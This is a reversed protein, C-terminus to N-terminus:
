HVESIRVSRFSSFLKFNASKLTQLQSFIWLIFTFSQEAEIFVSFDIHILFDASESPTQHSKKRGFKTSKVHFFEDLSFSFLLVERQHVDRCWWVSLKVKWLRRWRLTCTFEVFVFVFFLLFFIFVVFLLWKLPVPLCVTVNQQSEMQAKLSVSQSKTNKQTNKPTFTTIQVATGETVTPQSSLACLFLLCWSLM